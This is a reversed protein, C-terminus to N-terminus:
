DEVPMEDGIKLRVEEGAVFAKLDDESEFEFSSYTLETGDGPRREPEVCSVIKRIGAFEWRAPIGGWTFGDHGEDVRARIEAKEYAEDASTASILIINEWIKFETQVGELLKVVMVIHAAYWQVPSDIPEKDPRDNPKM